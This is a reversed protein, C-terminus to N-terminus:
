NLALCLRFRWAAAVDNCVYEQVQRKAEEPAKSDSSVAAGQRAGQEDREGAPKEAGRHLQSLVIDCPPNGRRVVDIRVQDPRHQATESHRRCGGSIRSTCDSPIKASRRAVESTKLFRMRYLSRISSAM